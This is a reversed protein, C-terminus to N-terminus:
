DLEDNAERSVGPIQTQEYRWGKIFAILDAMAQQDLQAEFGEPMLSQGTAKIRTIRKRDITHLKGNANKLTLSSSTEDSIYGEFVQDDETLVIYRFYNNDVAANPDLISTLLQRETKTRSDSIDPGIDLGVSGIRHCGACYKTFHEKGVALDTTLTLCSLYSAITKRRDSSVLGSLVKVLTKRSNPSAKTKLSQLSSVGVTRALDTSGALRNVFVEILEQDSEIVQLALTQDSHSGNGFYSLLTEMSRAKGLSQAFGIWAQRRLSLHATSNLALSELLEANPPTPVRAICNLADVRASLTHSPSSAIQRLWASYRPALSFERSDILQNLVALALLNSILAKESGVELSRDIHENVLAALESAFKDVPTPVLNHTVERLFSEQYNLANANALEAVSAVWGQLLMLESDNLCAAAAIVSERHNSLIAQYWLASKKEAALESAFEHDLALWSEFTAAVTQTKGHGQIIQLLANCVGPARLISPNSRIARLTALVLPENPEESIKALWVLFPTPPSTNSCLLQVARIKGRYSWEESDLADLLRKEFKSVGAERILRESTSAFWQNTSGLAAVLESENYQSLPRRGLSRISEAIVASSNGIAFIRGSDSGWREDQRQKLEAPVWRPHEIVARHMDVILVDGHPALSLNVPRFWPDHSALWEPAEDKDIPVLSHGIRTAVRRKILSGTPECVYINENQPALHKAFVGCAATFQNAHLNSTTWADILPFVRSAAGAPLIDERPALLNELPPALENQEFRVQIAPNRNSCFLRQGTESFTLGFQAPGTILELKGLAPHFKLDRSGIRVAATTREKDFHSGLRVNGGRLGCAIYWWGDPGLTPHNARLQENDEAFGSLWQQKEDARLDGNHDPFYALEGALTVLAGPKWLALGTPMNLGDAFVKSSDLIGDDDSDFLIRVRGQPSQGAELLPYDRMEVVWLRGAEDFAADVPDIVLPESAVLSITESAPSLEFLGLAESPAIAARRITQGTAVSHLFCLLALYVIQRFM